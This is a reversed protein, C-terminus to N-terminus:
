KHQQVSTPNHDKAPTNAHAAIATNSFYKHSGQGGGSSALVLGASAIIANPVLLKLKTPM